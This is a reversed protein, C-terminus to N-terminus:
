GANSAAMRRIEPRLARRRTSITATALPERGFSVGAWVDNRGECASRNRGDFPVFTENYGNHKAPNPIESGHGSFFFLFVDDRATIAAAEELLALIEAQSASTM